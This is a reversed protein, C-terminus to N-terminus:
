RLEALLAAEIYDLGYTHSILQIAFVPPEAAAEMLAVLGLLHSVPVPQLVQENETWKESYHLTELDAVDVSLECGLCRRSGLAQARLSHFAQALTNAEGRRAKLSLSIIIV